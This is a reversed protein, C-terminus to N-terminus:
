AGDDVELNDIFDQFSDPATKKFPKVKWSRAIAQTDSIPKEDTTQDFIYHFWQTAEKFKGNKISNCLLICRHMFSYSGIIDVISVM